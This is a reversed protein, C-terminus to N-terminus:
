EAPAAAATRRLRRRGLRRVLAIDGKESDSRAGGRWRAGGDVATWEETSEWDKSVDASEGSLGRIWQSGGGGRFVGEKAALRRHRRSCAIWGLALAVVALGLRLM